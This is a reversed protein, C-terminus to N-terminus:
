RIAPSGEPSRCPALRIFPQFGVVGLRLEAEPAPVLHGPDSAAPIQGFM